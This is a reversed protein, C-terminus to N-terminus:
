SRPANSKKTTKTIIRAAKTRGEKWERKEKKHAADVM